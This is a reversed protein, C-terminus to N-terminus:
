SKSHNTSSCNSNFVTKKLKQTIASSEESALKDMLSQLCGNDFLHWRDSASPMLLQLCILGCGELPPLLLTSSAKCDPDAFM